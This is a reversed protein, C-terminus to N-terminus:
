ARRSRRSRRLRIKRNRTKRRNKGVQPEPEIMNILKKIQDLDRWYSSTSLPIVRTTDIFHMGGDPTIMVNLSHIDGHAYGTSHLKRILETLKATARVDTYKNSVARNVTMGKIYEMILVFEGNKITSAVYNPFVGPIKDSFLKLYGAETQGQKINKIIKVAYMSEGHHYVAGDKGTGISNRGKDIERLMADYEPTWDSGEALMLPGVARSSRVPAVAAGPAVAYEFKTEPNMVDLSYSTYILPHVSPDTPSVLVLPQSKNDGSLLLAVALLFVSKFSLPQRPAGSGGVQVRAMAQIVQDYTPLPRGVCTQVKAWDDENFSDSPLCASIASM